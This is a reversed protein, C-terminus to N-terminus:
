RRLGVDHARRFAASRTPAHVIAGYRTAAAGKAHHLGCRPRGPRRVRDPLLVLARLHRDGAGYIRSVSIPCRHTPSRSTRPLGLSHSRASNLRREVLQPLPRGPGLNGAQAGLGLTRLQEPPAADNRLRLDARHAQRDKPHPGQVREDRARRARRPCDRETILSVSEADPHVTNVRTHEYIEVGHERCVRRLKWALRALNVLAVGYPDYSAAQFNPSRRKRSLRAPLGLPLPRRRPRPGSWQSTAM